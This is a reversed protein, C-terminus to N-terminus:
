KWYRKIQPQWVYYGDDENESVRWVYTINIGRARAALRMAGMCRPCPSLQGELLLNDGEGLPLLNFYEDNLVVPNTASGIMRMARAETHTSWQTNYGGGLDQEGATPDGSKLSFNGVPDWNADFAFGQCFHPSDSNHVLIPTFGAVVYYTHLDGITLDYTTTDAHYLRIGTVEARGVTTQLQDGIKLSKAEVFAQQTADYFPHHFTTTLSGAHTTSTAHDGSSTPAITLAVFDHDTYTTIVRTVTNGQVTAKGPVSDAIRDGIKIKDIRKTTGDAMLIPTSGAFSHPESVESPCGTSNEGLDPVNEQVKDVVTEATSPLESSPAAAEPAAAPAAAAPAEEAAAPAAASSPGGIEKPVVAQDKAGTTVAKPALKTLTNDGSGPGGSPNKASGAGAGSGDGDKPASSAADIAGQDAEILAQQASIADDLATEAEQFAKLSISGGVAYGPEVGYSAVMEDAEAAAEVAAEEDAAAEGCVAATIASDCTGLAMAGILIQKGILKVAEKWSTNAYGSDPVASSPMPTPTGSSAAKSAKDAHAAPAAQATPSPTDPTASGWSGFAKGILEQKQKGLSDLRWNAMALRFTPSTTILHVVIDAASQLVSALAAFVGGGGGEREMMHGSPDTGDLPSGAAYGFPNANATNPVASNAVTDKSTFQGAAPNYWRAAMNVEGTSADTWESQYGASLSATTGTNTLVNGLPDYSKIGSLATGTSTFTGVVDTHQDTWILASSGATAEGLLAGNAYRSYTTTGDSAVLNGTGSYSLTTSTGTSTNQQTILRGLADYTYQGTGADVQQGYADDQYTVTSSNSAKSALTGRATYQYTNTGDSTLEDQNNYTYVNSGVQTRNSDKDYSYCTLTSSTTCTGSGSYASASSGSTWSALRGAQDYTYASATGTSGTKSTLDGAEDYGYTLTAIPTGTSTELEDSNLEHANNYGLYEQNASTGYSIQSLQSDTNYTYTLTTGTSADAVTYPRSSTDYSYSTTGSADTRSAVLGDATYTFSSSGASSVGTSGVATTLEGRDNYTFTEGTANSAATASASATTTSTSSTTLTNSTAATKVNGNLYYTFTRTATLAEASAGSESLVDGRGDYSYSLTAGGPEVQTLLDGDADYSSTTTLDSPATYTSTAPEIRYEPLGWSNYATYTTDAANTTVNGSSDVSTGGGPTYATEHGALDYGYAVTISDTSSSDVPQTVSTLVGTGDYRYTTTPSVSSSQIVTSSTVRGDADYGYSTGAVQTTGGTSYQDTATQQGAENYTVTEYSADPAEVKVAQGAGNYSTTTTDNAANTTSTQEGVNDYGYDTYAGTTESKQESLWGGTNAYSYDTIYSATTADNSGAYRDVVTSYTERSLYDYTAATQAGLPDTTSTARGLADYSYSTTSTTGAVYDAVKAIAVKGLQNYTYTITEGSASSSNYAIPDTITEVNGDGYYLYTAESPTSTSPCSTAGPICPTSYSPLTKTTVEGDAGYGYKTENGDPDVTEVKDGFTDYGVTSVARSTTTTAASSTISYTTATVTTSTAEVQRGAEDYSYYTPYGLPDIQETVLGQENVLDKTTYTNSGDIVSTSTTNGLEDYTTTQDSVTGRDGGADTVGTVTTEKVKGDEEYTYATIRNVGSPDVTVQKKQSADDYSYDTNTAGNNTAQTLLNGAGDYTSTSEIYTSTGDTKAVQYTLGDDYYAYTTTYDLKNPDVVDTSLRGGADYTWEEELLSSSSTQTGTEDTNELYQMRKQNAADYLTETERGTPDTSTKVNGFLDYAYNTANNDPDTKTQVQDFDNYKYKTERGADGGTTDASTSTKVNGDDDYTITTVATHVASTVRDTVAPAASTAVHGQGDYSYTAVADEGAADGVAAGARGEGYLTGVESSSLARQYAQVNAIDGPFDSSGADSGVWFTGGAAAWTQSATATGVLTGNVYFQDSSTAANYVAVLHYWTSTSPSSAAEASYWTPSSSETATNQFIFRDLGGYTSYMIQAAKGSPGKVAAVVAYTSPTSSLDVWASITYSANTTLVPSPVSIGQGSTGPFSAYSGNFTVSTATGTNGLGSTDAATGSGAADTLPLLAVRQKGTTKFSLRGLDDYKFYTVLGDANTISCTDGDYYYSYRTVAGGPTTTSALLGVPAPSTPADCAPYTTTGDTYTNTTVRSLPDTSSLEEGNSNYAYTTQYATDTASTSRGDSSGTVLDARVDTSNYALKNAAWYYTKYSTECKNQSLLQCTTESVQNGRADHGTITEDGNADVTTNLFGNTDYGYTTAEGLGNVYRVERMGHQPDYEYSETHTVGGYTDAPDTVTVKEIPDYYGKSNKYAQWISAVDDETLASRYLAVDAMSGKFYQVASSAGSLSDDPWSGGMWGAGLSVYTNSMAITGSKSAVEKGDVYLYQKSNAADGVLMAFHWAGNNVTDSSELPTYADGTWLESVLKGDKGIYLAPDYGDSASSTVKAGGTGVLVQSTGTTEFWVGITVSTSDSKTTTNTASNVAGNPLEIYSASGDFSGGTWGPMASTGSAGLTVGNYSASGATSGYWADNNIDDTVTTAPSADSLKWVHQPSYADVAARYVYSSGYAGPLGVGWTGGNADTVSDVRGTVTDYTVTAEPAEASNSTHNPRMIQILQASSTTGATELGAIDSAALARDYYAVDSMSGVFYQVASTAGTLSDDPWTGGMWGAGASVYTGNSLAITGSKSDVQKGDLYLYQENTAGSASLMAFHWKGDNVAASSEMPTYADGTWLESVLKGDKGIYLAPDYGDSGSSTVPAGGMDVLVESTGTTEFWLGISEDSSQTLMSNPLEVYAKSGSLFGATTATSSTLHSTGGLSVNSYTITGTGVNAAELTTASTSGSADDLPWYQNAGSDSVALQYVSGNNYNYGTCASTSTAPANQSPACVSTLWDDTYNYTWKQATTDDGSTADNTVVTSVHSNAAGSPTAWSITVYRKTASSTIKTIQGATTASWSFQLQHNEHDAISTLAYVGAVGSAAATVTHTYNYSTGDKDVLVYGNSSFTLSAYRGEPPSYTTGDADLGFAVQQGDPYTVVAETVKGAASLVQTAKADLTSSWGQGLAETARADLSNYDRVLSLSPGIGAIDADTASTTYNGIAADFGHGNTNQSLNGTLIPPPATTSFSSLSSWDGWQYGNYAVAEWEYTNGWALKGSPVIYVPTTTPGATAVATSSTGTVKYIAYQYETTAGSWSTSDTNSVTLTPTLTDLSTGSVPSVLTTVAKADPIYTLSVYPAYGGYLSSTFWKRYNMDSNSTAVMELGYYAATSNWQLSNLWTTSLNTYTWEGTYSTGDETVSGTAGTSGSWAGLTQYSTPQNDWNIGSESWSSNPAGVTFSAYSSATNSQAYAFAAFQASSIHYGQHVMTSTPFMLYSYNQQGTSSDYGVVMRMSSEYNQSPYESSTYTTEEQGNIDATVTPDVTVPFVRSPDDLWSQDLTMTLQEVGGVTALSYTVAQTQAPEPNSATGSGDVAYPHELDAVVNGSSDTLQWTGDSAQALSLGSMALDFTWSNAAAASELTVSEKVGYTESTLELNTNALISPYTVTEGSVSGTVDAAGSLSWGFSESSGFTLTALAGTSTSGVSASPSPTATPSASDTPSATASASASASPTASASDSPSDTAGADQQTVGSAVQGRAARGSGSSSAIHLGFAAAKNAYGGSVAVLSANIPRWTGSSDKYNVPTQSARETLTGDANKYWTQTANTRSQDLVSTRADFGHAISGSLGSKVGTPAGDGAAASQGLGLGPAHGVGHVAATSHAGVGRGVKQAPLVVAAADEFLSKVFRVVSGVPLRGPTLQEATASQTAVGLVMLASVLVAM